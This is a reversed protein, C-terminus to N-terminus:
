NHHTFVFNILHTWSFDKIAEWDSHKHTLFFSSFYNSTSGKGLDGAQTYFINAVQYIYYFVEMVARKDDGRQPHMM